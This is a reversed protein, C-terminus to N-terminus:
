DIVTAVRVEAIISAIRDDRQLCDRAALFNAHIVPGVTKGEIVLEGARAAGPSAAPLHPAVVPLVQHADAQSERAEHARLGVADQPALARAGSRGGNLSVPACCAVTTTQLLPPLAPAQRRRPAPPAATQPHGRFYPRRLRPPHRARSPPRCRTNSPCPRAQAAAHLSHAPSRM